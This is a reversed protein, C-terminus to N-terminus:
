HLLHDQTNCVMVNSLPCFKAWDDGNHKRMMRYIDFQYDGEGEFIVEEFRSSALGSTQINMRSLGFDIITAKVGHTLSNMPIFKEEGLSSSDSIKATRASRRGPTSPRSVEDILIQGWHLDRHEFSVAQEAVALATCVQWFVSACQRWANRMKKHALAFDQAELDSGGHPLLIVVFHQTDPLVAPSFSQSGKREDFADWEELLSNPYRGRVVYTKLLKIFGSHVEGMIKTAVIERLVDGPDSVSPWPAENKNGANPGRDRPKIAIPVIKLVVDGVRFVESFSAEGIKRFILPADTQNRM